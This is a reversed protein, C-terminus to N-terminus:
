GLSRRGTFRAFLTKDADVMEAEDDVVLFVGSPPQRLVAAPGGVTPTPIGIPDHDIDIVPIPETGLLAAM